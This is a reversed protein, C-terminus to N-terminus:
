IGLSSFLKQLRHVCRSISFLAIIDPREDHVTLLTDVDGNFDGDLDDNTVM